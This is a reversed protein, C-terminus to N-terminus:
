FLLKKLSARFTLSFRRLHSMKERRYIPSTWSCLINYPKGETRNMTFIETLYLLILDLVLFKSGLPALLFEEM